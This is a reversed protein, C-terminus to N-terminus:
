PCDFSEPSQNSVLLRTRFIIKLNLLPSSPPYTKVLIELLRMATNHNFNPSLKLKFKIKTEFMRRLLRTSYSIM